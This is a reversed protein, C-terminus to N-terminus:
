IKQLNINNANINGSVDLTYNPQTKCIGLRNNIMDFLLNFSQNIANAGNGM